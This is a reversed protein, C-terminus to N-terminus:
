QRTCCSWVDNKRSKYYYLDLRLLDLWYCLRFCRHFYAPCKNVICWVEAQDHTKYTFDFYSTAISIFATFYFTCYKERFYFTAHIPYVLVEFKYNLLGLPSLYIYKTVKWFQTVYPTRPDYHPLSVAGSFVTIDMKFAELTTLTVQRVQPRGSHAERPDEGNEQGLPQQTFGEAAAPHCAPPLARHAPGSEWLRQYQCKESESLFFLYNALVARYSLSLHSAVTLFGSSICVAISVTLRYALMPDKRRESWILNCEWRKEGFMLEGWELDAGYVRSVVAWPATISGCWLYVCGKWGTWHFVGYQISMWERCAGRWFLVAHRDRFRESITGTPFYGTM